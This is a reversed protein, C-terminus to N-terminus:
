GSNLLWPPLASKVMSKVFYISNGNEFITPSFYFLLRSPKIAYKDNLNWIKLIDNLFIFLCFLIFGGGRMEHNSRLFLFMCKSHVYLINWLEWICQRPYIIITVNAVSLLPQTTRQYLIFNVQEFFHFFYIKGRNWICVFLSDCARSSTFM